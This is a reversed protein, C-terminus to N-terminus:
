DADPRLRRTPPYPFFDPFEGAQIREQVAIWWQPRLLDGHVARFAEGVPGAFRLFRGFEEPFVDHEGVYFWPEGGDDREDDPEPMERFVCDVMPCLEDYDYFVVRGH